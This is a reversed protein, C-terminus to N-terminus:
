DEQETKLRRLPCQGIGIQAKECEIAMRLYAQRENNLASKIRDSIELERLRLTRWGVIFTVFGALVAIIRGSTEFFSNLESLSGILVGFGSCLASFFTSIFGIVFSPKM